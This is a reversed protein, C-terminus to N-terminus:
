KKNFYKKNKYIFSGLLIHISIPILYFGLEMLGESKFSYIINSLTIIIIQVIAAYYGLLIRKHFGYVVLISIMLSVLIWLSMLSPSVQLWNKMGQKVFMNEDKIISSVILIMVGCIGIINIWKWLIIIFISSKEPNKKKDRINKIILVISSIIASIISLFMLLVIVLLGLTSVEPQIAVTLFLVGGLIILSIVFIIGSTSYRKNDKKM